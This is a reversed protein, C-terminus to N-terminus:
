QTLAAVAKGLAPGFCNDAKKAQLEPLAMRVHYDVIKQLARRRDPCTEAYHWDALAVDAYAVRPGAGLAELLRVLEWRYINEHVVSRTLLTPVAAPGIQSLVLKKARESNADAIATVVDDILVSEERYDADRALAAGYAEMAPETREEGSFARARLFWYEPSQAHLNYIQDLRALATSYAKQALLRKAERYPDVRLAVRLVVCAIFLAVVSAVVVLPARQPGFRAEVRGYGRGLWAGLQGVGRRAQQTARRSSGALTTSVEAVFAMTERTMVQASALTDGVSPAHIVARPAHHAELILREELARLARALQREHITAGQLLPDVLLTAVLTLVTLALLVTATAIAIERFNAHAPFLRQFVHGLKPGLIFHDGAHQQAHHSALENGMALPSLAANGFFLSGLALSAGSALADSIAHRNALYDRMVPELASSFADGSVGAPAVAFLAAGLEQEVLREYATSFSLPLTLLRLQLRSLGLKEAWGAARKMLLSPVALLLNLPHRWLDAIWTRRLRALGARWGFVDHAAAHLHQAREAVWATISAQIEM